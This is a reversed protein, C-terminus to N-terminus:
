VPRIHHALSQFKKILKQQDGIWCYRMSGDPHCSVVERIKEVEVDGPSGGIGICDIVVGADKLRRAVNRPSGGKNYDGDTLVIIRRLYDGKSQTEAIHSSSAGQQDYLLYSLFGSIARGPSVAKSALKGFLCAEALELPAKFNTTGMDPLRRLAHCLDDSGTRLCVPAHLLEADTGFGIIGVVDDPYHQAKVRILEVNAKAAAAKRSPPWDGDNMSSSLDILIM